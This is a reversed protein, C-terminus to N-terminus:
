QLADRGIIRLNLGESKNKRMSQPELGLGLELGVGLKVGWGGSM